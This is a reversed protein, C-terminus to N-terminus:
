ALSRVCTDTLSQVVHSNLPSMAQRWTSRQAAYVVPLASGRQAPRKSGGLVSNLRCVRLVKVLRPPALSDAAPARLRNQPVSTSETFLATPHSLM